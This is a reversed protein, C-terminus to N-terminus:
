PSVQIIQYQREQGATFHRAFEVAEALRVGSFYTPKHGWMLSGDREAVVWAYEEYDGTGIPTCRIAFADLGIGDGEWVQVSM